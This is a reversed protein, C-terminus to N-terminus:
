DIKYMALKKRLTGRSIGLFKAAKSQNRKTFKMITKLLPIEMEALVMDYLEVPEEGALAEFYSQLSQQVNTTFSQQVTTTSAVSEPSITTTTEMTTAIGEL